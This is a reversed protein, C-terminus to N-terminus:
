VKDKVLDTPSTGDLVESTQQITHCHVLNSYIKNNNKIPPNPTPMKIQEKKSNILYLSIITVIIMLTNIFHLIRGELSNESHVHVRM